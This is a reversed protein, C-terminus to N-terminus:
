VRKGEITQHYEPLSAYGYVYELPWRQTREKERQDHWDAWDRPTMAERTRQLRGEPM